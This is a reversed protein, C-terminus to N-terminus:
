AFVVALLRGLRDIRLHFADDVVGEFDRLLDNVRIAVFEFQDGVRQQLVLREFARLHLLDDASALKGRWGRRRFDFRRGAGLRCRRQRFNRRFRNWRMQGSEPGRRRRCGSRNASSLYGHRIQSSASSSGADEQKTSAVLPLYSCPVLSTKRQVSLTRRRKTAIIGRQSQSGGACKMLRKGIIIAGERRAALKPRKAASVTRISRAPASQSCRSIMSPCKTGFMDKPGCTARVMRGNEFSKKSVCKIHERGSIKSFGKASAPTSWIFM